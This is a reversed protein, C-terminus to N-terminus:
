FIATYSVPQLQSSALQGDLFSLYVQYATGANQTTVLVPTEDDMLVQDVWVDITHAMNNPLRLAMVIESENVGTLSWFSSLSNKPPSTKLCAPISVSSPTDTIETSPGYNSLWEISIPSLARTTTATISVIEIRKLKVAAILRAHLKAGTTNVLILNLLNGRTINILNTSPSDVGFRYRHSVKVSANISVIKPIQTNRKNSRKTRPM